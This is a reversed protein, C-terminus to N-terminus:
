AAVSRHCQADEGHHNEEEAVAVPVVIVLLPHYQADLGVLVDSCPLPRRFLEALLIGLNYQQAVEVQTVVVAAPLEGPPYAEDIGLMGVQHEDASVDHVDAHAGQYFFIHRLLEMPNLCGDVGTQAVM